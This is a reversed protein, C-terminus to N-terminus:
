AAHHANAVARFAAMTLRLGSQGRGAFASIGARSRSKAALHEPPEELVDSLPSRSFLHGNTKVRGAKEAGWGM